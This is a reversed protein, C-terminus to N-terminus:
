RKSTYIVGLGDLWSGTYGYMGILEFDHSPAELTSLHGGKANGFMPSLRGATTEFQIADMWAGNRFHFRTIVEGPDLVLESFDKKENGILVEKKTGEPLNGNPSSSTDHKPTISTDSLKNVLKNLYNRAPVKPAGGQPKSSQGGGSPVTFYFKVGDLAGGHYIRVKYVTNLDFGIIAPKKDKSKGLLASKYGTLTGRNLGFDSKIVNDKGSNSCHDKFNNIFLDGGLSLVRVAFDDSADKPAAQRLMQLSSNYDLMMEHQLGPGGYNRPFYELHHRALDKTVFEVMFIGPQLKILAGGSPTNYLTPEKNIDDHQKDPAFTTSFTKGFNDTPLSFSGHHLYRILDLRNWHCVRPWNGDAGIVEGRTGRRLCEMERTQFSRNWWVYDRLMVGNVQHPSGLSHGIEHMFAGLTINFCEWSTGCENCDNAVENTSLHTADLFHPTVQPFNIPWSHLGHSGFIACKVEATGGGLAAHTLIIKLRTEFTADLYLFACQIATGMKRYTDFIEPSHNKMLDIAHSFLWGKDTGKPNQQAVNPNRLEAVTKPSRIVHIKVEQHPTPSEVNYGFIGQHKVTEEVFQFSRNSLGIARMEDQTFAQMLRGAVKLKRIATDLNAVEGRQLRYSPMDYSGNSDKGLIVCLHVPKNHPLPNYTLALQGQDVVHQNGNYQPFGLGNIFGNDSVQVEFINSEGPYVHLLAKFNGNNNVEFHQPPYVKNKNNTFSIVGTNIGTSTRGSVIVTSSSVIEHDQYNFTLPM